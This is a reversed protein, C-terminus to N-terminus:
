GSARRRIVGARSAPRRGPVLAATMLTRALDEQEDQGHPQHRALRNRNTGSSNHTNNRRTTGGVSTFRGCPPPRGRAPSRSVRAAIMKTAM